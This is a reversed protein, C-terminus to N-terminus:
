GRDVSPSMPMYNNVHSDIPSSSYPSNSGMEMYDGGTSSPSAKRQKNSPLPLNNNNWSRSWKENEEPITTRANM